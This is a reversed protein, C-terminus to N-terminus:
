TNQIIVMEGLVNERVKLGSPQRTHTNTTSKLNVKAVSSAVMRDLDHDPLRSTAHINHEHCFRRVSRASLGRTLGPNARKLEESITAYSKREEVVKQRIITLLGPVSGLLAMQAGRQSRQVQFVHKDFMSVTLSILLPWSGTSIRGEWTVGKDTARINETLTIQLM